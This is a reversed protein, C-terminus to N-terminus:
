NMVKECMKVRRNFTAYSINLEELAKKLPIEGKKWCKYVEMFYSSHVIDAREPKRIKEHEKEGM